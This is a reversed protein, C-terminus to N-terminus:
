TAIAIVTQTTVGAAVLLVLTAFGRSLTRAPLRRALRGAPLSALIAAAAFAGIIWWELGGATGAASAATLYPLRAAISNIVIVVLSTAM